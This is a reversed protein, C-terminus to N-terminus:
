TYPPLNELEEITVLVPRAGVLFLYNDEHTVFPINPFAESGTLAKYWNYLHNFDVFGYGNYFVVNVGKERCGCSCENFAAKLAKITEIVEQTSDDGLNLCSPCKEDRSILGRFVTDCLCCRIDGICAM